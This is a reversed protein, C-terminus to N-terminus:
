PIDDILIPDIPQELLQWTTFTYLSTFSKFKVIRRRTTQTAASDDLIDRCREKKWTEEIHTVKFEFLSRYRWMSPNFEKARELFLM